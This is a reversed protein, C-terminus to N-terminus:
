ALSQCGGDLWKTELDISDDRVIEIRAGGPLEIKRALVAGRNEPSQFVGSMGRGEDQHFVHDFSAQATLRVRVEDAPGDTISILRAYEEDAVRTDRM